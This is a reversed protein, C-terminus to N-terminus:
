AIISCFTVSIKNWLTSVWLPNLTSKSLSHDGLAQTTELWEQDWWRIGQWDWVFFYLCELTHEELKESRTHISSRWELFAKGLCPWSRCVRGRMSELTTPGLHEIEQALLCANARGCLSVPLAPSVTGIKWGMQTWQRYHNGAGTQEVDLAQMEPAVEVLQPPSQHTFTQLEEAKSPITSVNRM